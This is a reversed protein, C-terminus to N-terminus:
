KSQKWARIAAYVAGVIRKWKSLKQNMDDVVGLRSRSDVRRLRADV